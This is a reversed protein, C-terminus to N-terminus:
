VCCAPCCGAHPTLAVICVNIWKDKNILICYCNAVRSVRTESERSSREMTESAHRMRRSCHMFRVLIGCRRCFLGGIRRDMWCVVKRRRRRRVFTQRGRSRCASSASNLSSSHCLTCVWRSHSLSVHRRRLQSYYCLNVKTLVSFGFSFKNKLYNESSKQWESVAGHNCQLISRYSPPATCKM